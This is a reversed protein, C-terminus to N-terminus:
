NLISNVNMECPKSATLMQSIINCIVSESAGARIEQAWFNKFDDLKLSKKSNGM